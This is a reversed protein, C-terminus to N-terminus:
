RTIRIGSREGAERVDNLFSADSGDRVSAIVLDARGVRDGFLLLADDPDCRNSTWILGDVQAFQAHIAQAWTATHHYQTPLSGILSAQRVGWKMLDQARLSALRLTRRAVLVSLTRGEVVFQPVTKRPANPPIDHFITEYIAAAM